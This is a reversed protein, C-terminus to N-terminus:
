IRSERGSEAKAEAEASRFDLMSMSIEAMRKVLVRRTARRARRRLVMREISVAKPMIM